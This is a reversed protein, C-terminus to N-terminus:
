FCSTVSGTTTCNMQKGGPLFYTKTSPPPLTQGGGPAAGTAMGFGLQLMKVAQDRDRQRKQEELFKQQEAYIAQQQLAEGRALDIQQRCTAYENSKPKFGYKKCTADDPSLSREREEYVLLACQAFKETKKKYGVAECVIEEEPIRKNLASTAQPPEIGCSSFLMFGLPSNIPPNAIWTPKKPNLTNSTLAKRNQCDFYTYFYYSKNTAGDVVYAVYAKGTNQLPKVLKSTNWYYYEPANVQSNSFLAGIYAINEGDENLHGCLNKVWVEGVSSTTPKVWDNALKWTEQDDLSFSQYIKQNCNIRLKEPVSPSGTQRSQTYIVADVLNDDSRSTQYPDYYVIKQDSWSLFFWNSNELIQNPDIALSCNSFITLAGLIFFSISKHLSINM